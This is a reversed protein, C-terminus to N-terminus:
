LYNELTFTASFTSMLEIRRLIFMLLPLQIFWPQASDDLQHHLRMTVLPLLIYSSQASDDPQHHLRMRVNIHQEDDMSNDLVPSTRTIKLILRLFRGFCKNYYRVGILFETYFSGPFVLSADTKFLRRSSEQVKTLKVTKIRAVQWKQMHTHNGQCTYEVSLLNVLM